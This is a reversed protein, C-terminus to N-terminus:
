DSSRAMAAATPARAARRGATSSTVYVATRWRANLSCTMRVSALRGGDGGRAASSATAIPWNIRSRWVSYVTTSWDTLAARRSGAM